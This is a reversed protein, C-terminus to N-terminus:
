GHAQKLVQNVFDGMENRFREASFREAHRRISAHDTLPQRVFRQVAEQLSDTSQEAFFMGSLGEVVTDRYGGYDLALVPTGTAQAEVCTIGFDEKAAFICARAHQMYLRLEDEHQYGLWVINDAGQLLAQVARSQGGEGILVLKHQPMARFARIIIDMKKYPVFRGVALFYDQRPHPNLMFRETQVPPHIVTSERGYVARIQEQIHRSNAIFHDVNRATYYDWRRVPGLLVRAPWRTWFSLDNLYDERLYWAYRMPTHCYCIHPKGDPRRFGKAVAHSSSVYLDAPKVKLQRIFLPMLPLLGKYVSNLWPLGQLWSTHCHRESLIDRRDQPALTNFLTFLEVDDAAFLQLLERVVKESGANVRLWDHILSIKM